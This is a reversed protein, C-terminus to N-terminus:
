GAIHTLLHVLTRVPVGTPGKALWPKEDNSWATGAIDLHVWPTDGVFEGVFMAATIAGGYRGGTNAIDGISSKYLDRYDDDVPLQWMKEGTQTGSSIVRDIWQQDRGFVGTMVKGLAVAVAATLTAADILVNCGLQRAYSISDALALRGEADTNLVEITKGSMSTIVDGPRYAKGGPMNETAPIVAIVRVKPKIRSIAQMVGLMTAGGAMDTKMEHMDTASKLSIGGSDFTIGKGVLGIVPSEPADAPLYRLVLLRPPEESGQAVALFAEMKLSRIEDEGLEQYELGALSAMERAKRALITPTLHNGPENVLSRTFNAAEAIAQGRELAANLEDSVALNEGTLILTDIRFDGNRETRYVDSDYDAMVAGEALCQAQEATTEEGTLWALERVGRARLYRVAAGALRGLHFPRFKEKKGGGMVLLKSAALGAPRHVLTREYIKGKLEGSEKLEVLLKRTEAPLLSVSGSELPDDEFCWVTVAPLALAAPSEQRLEIKL